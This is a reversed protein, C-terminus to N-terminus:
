FELDVDFDFDASIIDLVVAEGSLTGSIKLPNDGAPPNLSVTGDLAVSALTCSGSGGLFWYRASLDASLSLQTELLGLEFPDIKIGAGFALSYNAKFGIGAGVFDDGIDVGLDFGLSQKAYVYAGDNEIRFYGKGEFDGCGPKVSILNEENGVEIIWTKEKPKSEFFLTGKTCIIEESNWGATGSIMPTEKDIYFQLAGKSVGGASESIKSTVYQPEAAAPISGAKSSKPPAAAEAFFIPPLNFKSCSGSKKGSLGATGAKLEFDCGGGEFGIVTNADADAGFKVHGLSSNGLSFKTFEGEVSELGAVFGAFDVDAGFGSPVDLIKLNVPSLNINFPIGNKFFDLNLTGLKFGLVASPSIDLDIGADPIDFGIGGLTPIGIKGAEFSLAGLYDGGFDFGVKLEDDWIKGIGNGFTITRDFAEIDLWNTTNMGFSLDTGLNFNFSAPSISIGGIPNELKLGKVGEIDVLGLKIDEYALDIGSSGLDFSFLDNKFSLPNQASFGAEIGNVNIDIEDLGLKIYNSADINLDFSADGISVGTLDNFLEFKQPGIEFHRETDDYVLKEVPNIFLSVKDIKLDLTANELKVYKQQDYQLLIKETLDVTVKKDQKELNIGKTEDMWAVYNKSSETFDLRDDVDLTSSITGYNIKGGAENIEINKDSSANIKLVNNELVYTLDGAAVDVKSATNKASWTAGNVTANISGLNGNSTLTVTNSGAYALTKENGTITAKVKGSNTKYTAKIGSETTGNKDIELGNTLTEQISIVDSGDTIKLDGEDDMEFVVGGLTLKYDAELDDADASVEILNGNQDISMTYDEDDRSAKALLGAGKIELTSEDSEATFNYSDSGDTLTFAGTEASFDANSLYIIQGGNYNFNLKRDKLAGVVDFTVGPDKFQVTYLGEKNGGASIGSGDIFIAGSMTDKPIMYGSFDYRSDKYSFSGFEGSIGEYEEAAAMPIGSKCGAATLTTESDSLYLSGFKQIKNGILDVKYNDKELGLRGFGKGYGSVSLTYGEGNFWAFASDALVGSNIEYDNKYKFYLDGTKEKPAAKLNFKIDSNEFLVRGSDVGANGGVGFKNGDVEMQIFAYDGNQLEGYFKKTADHEYNITGSLNPKDFTADMKKGKYDLHAEGVYQADAEGKFDIASSKYTFAGKKDNAWFTAGLKTGDIDMDAKVIKTSPDAEMDYITNEYTFGAFAKSNEVMGYVSKDTAYTFDGRLKKTNGNGSVKLLKGDYEVTADILKRDFTLNSTLKMGELTGNVFAKGKTKSGFDLSNSGAAIKMDFNGNSYGTGTLENSGKKFGIYAGPVGSDEKKELGAYIEKGKNEYWFQNGASGIQLGLVDSDLLPIEVKPLETIEEIVEILETGAMAAAQAAGGSRRNGNICSIDGTVNMTYNTGSIKMDAVWDSQFIAGGTKGDIIQMFTTQALDTSKDFKFADGQLSMHHYMRGEFGVCNFPEMIPIGTGTKDEFYSDFYWYKTGDKDGVIINAQMPVEVPLLMKGEIKGAFVTGLNPDNNVLEVWGKFENMPNNIELYTSGTVERQSEMGKKYPVKPPALSANEFEPQYKEDVGMVSSFAMKPPGDGGDLRNGLDVDSLLSIMYFGSEYTAAIENLLFKFGGHSGSIPSSLSRSGNRKGFGIYGDGYIKFDSMNSFKADLVPYTIDVTVDLRERDAFVARKIDVDMKNDGGYPNFKLKRNGLEQDIFGEMVGENTLPVTFSFVENPGLFPIKFEGTLKSETLNSKEINILGALTSPFSNFALEDDEVEFEWKFFLGESNTYFRTRGKQEVDFESDFKAKLQGTNDMNKTFVAKFKSFYVGKWEKDSSRSGPSETESLDIIANYPKLAFSSNEIPTFHNPANSMLYPAEFVFLSNADEFPIIYGKEDNTPIYDPLHFEGGLRLNYTNQGVQIDGPEKLFLKHHLPDALDFENEGSLLGTGSIKYDKDVQYYALETKVIAPQGGKVPHPLPWEIIGGYYLGRKTLKGTKFIFTAPGNEELKPKLDLADRNELSFLVEGDEMYNLGSIEKIKVGSFECSVTDSEDESLQVIGRGKLDQLDKKDVRKVFVKFNGASFEEIFPPGYFDWVESAAVEQEGSTASVQWAYHDDTDLTQNLEWSAGQTSRTSGLTQEAWAPNNKIAQEPSQGEKIKVIKISYVFEQGQVKKDTATWEFIKEDNKGITGGDAPSKLSILGGTPYGYYFWCFESRGDNAYVNRGLNDKAQVQYSYRYGVDLQTTTLDLNFTSQTMPISEFVRMSQGNQVAAYGDANPDLIKWISLTYQSNAALSPSGGPSAQWGFLVSQPVTPTVMKECEPNMLRPPQEQFINVMACGQQSIEIGTRYDLVTICIQYFGEPLRGGNQYFANPDTGSVNINNPDLYPGFDTSQLVYPVGASLTIPSIPQFSQKTEIKINNSEIRIKLRVDFTPRQFDNSVITSRFSTNSAASFDKLSIPYPPTVTTTVNIPYVQAFVDSAFVLASICLIAKFLKM